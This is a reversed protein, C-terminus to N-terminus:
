VPPFLVCRLSQFWCPGRGIGGGDVLVGWKGGEAPATDGCPSNPTPEEQGWNFVLCLFVYM